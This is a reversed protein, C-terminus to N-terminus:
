YRKGINTITSTLDIRGKEWITCFKELLDETSKIIKTKFEARLLLPLSFFIIIFNIRRLVKM